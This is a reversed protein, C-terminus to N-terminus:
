AGVFKRLLSQVNKAQEPTPIIKSTHLEILKAVVAKENASIWITADQFLDIMKDFTDNQAATLNNNQMYSYIVRQVYVRSNFDLNLITLETNDVIKSATNM